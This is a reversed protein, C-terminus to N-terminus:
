RDNVVERIKELLTEQYLPTRTAHSVEEMEDVAKLIREREKQIAEAVATTLSYHYDRDSITIPPISSKM